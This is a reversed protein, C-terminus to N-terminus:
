PLEKLGRRRIAKVARTAKRLVEKAKHVDVLMELHPLLVEISSIHEEFIDLPESFLFPSEEPNFVQDDFVKIFKRIFADSARIAVVVDPSLIRIRANRFLVEQSDEMFFGDLQNRDKNKLYGSVAQQFIHVNTNHLSRVFWYKLEDESIGSAYLRGLQCANGYSLVGKFVHEQLYGPLEAFRLALSITRVNRGVKRAFEVLAIHGKTEILYRYYRSYFVAEEQPSVPDYTNESAQLDLLDEVSMSSPCITARISDYGQGNYRENLLNTARIRREGGVLILFSENIPTLKSFLVNTRQVKNVIGLYKRADTESLQAVLVSNILGNKEISKSLAETKEPHFIRRMQPLINIDAIRLIRVPADDLSPGRTQLAPLGM